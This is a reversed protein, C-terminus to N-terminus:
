KKVHVHEMFGKKLISVSFNKYLGYDNKNYFIHVAHSMPVAHGHMGKPTDQRAEGAKRGRKWLEERKISFIPVM